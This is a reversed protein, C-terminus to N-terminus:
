EPFDDAPAKGTLQLYVQQAVQAIDNPIVAKEGDPTTKYIAWRIALWFPSGKAALLAEAESQREQLVIDRFLLLYEKWEEKELDGPVMQLWDRLYLTAERWKKLRVLIVALTHVPYVIHPDLKVARHALKEALDLRTNLLYLNWAVTNLMYPTMSLHHYHLLQDMSLLLSLAEDPQQDEMLFSLYSVRLQLMTYGSGKEEMGHDYYFYANAADKKREAYLEALLRYAECSLDYAHDLVMGYCQEAQQYDEIEEYCRGILLQLFPVQRISEPARCYVAIAEEHDSLDASLTRLLRHWTTVDEPAAALSERCCEVALEYQKAHHYIGALGASLDYLRFDFKDIWQLCNGLSVPDDVHALVGNLADLYAKGLVDPQPFFDDSLTFALDFYYVAMRYDVKQAYAYGLVFYLHVKELPKWNGIPFHELFVIDYASLQLASLLEFTKNGLFLAFSKEEPYITLLERALDLVPECDEENLIGTLLGKLLDPMAAAGQKWGQLNLFQIYWNFHESSDLHAPELKVLIGELQELVDKAIPNKEKRWNHRFLMRDSAAIEGHNIFSCQMTLEKLKRAVDQRQWYAALIKRDIRPLICLLTIDKALELNNSTHQLFREASHLPFPPTAGHHNVSILGSLFAELGVPDPIVEPEKSKPPVEKAGGRSTKKKPAFQELFLPLDAYTDGYVIPIISDPLGKPVENSRVLIYHETQPNLFRGKAWNLFAQFHPDDMGSGFGVFIIPQHYEMSRMLTQIFDNALIQHYTSLDLIMSAGNKWCGHVHLVGKRKGKLIQSCFEAQEWTALELGLVKEILTDYNTTLIPLNLSGIANILSADKVTLRGITEEVWRPYTETGLRNFWYMLQSAVNMKDFVTGEELDQKKRELWKDDLQDFHRRCTFLGHLLLGNWGSLADGSTAMSVGAGALIIAKKSKIVNGLRADM